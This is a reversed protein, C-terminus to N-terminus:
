RGRPRRKRTGFWCIRVRPRQSPHGRGQHTFRSSQRRWPGGAGHDLPARAVVRAVRPSRRPRRAPNAEVHRERTCHLVASRGRQWGTCGGPGVYPAVDLRHPRPHPARLGDHNFRRRLRGSGVGLGLRLHGVGRRATASQGKRRGKPAHLHVPRRGCCCPLTRRLTRPSRLQCCRHQDAVVGMHARPLSQGVGRQGLSRYAAPTQATQTFRIHQGRRPSRSAVSSCVGAPDSGGCRHEPRGVVGAVVGADRRSGGMAMGQPRRQGPVLARVPHHGGPGGLCRHDFRLRAAHVGRGITGADLRSLEMSRHERERHTWRRPSPSYRRAPPVRHKARQGM